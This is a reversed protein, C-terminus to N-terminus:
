IGLITFVRRTCLDLFYEMKHETKETAFLITQGSIIAQIEEATDAISATSSLKFVKKEVGQYIMMAIRERGSIRIQTSLTKFKESYSSLYYFYMWLSMYGPNQKAWLFPGRIYSRMVKAPDGSHSQSEKLSYDKLTTIVKLIVEYHLDEIEKFYYHILPPPVKAKKAIENLKLFSAGSESMIELAANIIKEKKDLTGM